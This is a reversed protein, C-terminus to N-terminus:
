RKLIRAFFALVHGWAEKAAEERYYGPMVDNFFSHGAGQYIHVEHEIGQAELGKRLEEVRELPIGADEAGYAGFVPCRIQSLGEPVGGGGYFVAAAGINGNRIATGLSLFGGMCFGIVGVPGGAVVDLSKLHRVASDLDREARETDMDTRLKRAEELDSAEPGHYLDPALVTYGEQAFRRAIGRIDENLGFVEQIVVLGPVPAAAEPVALFGPSSDGNGPFTMDRDVRLEPM